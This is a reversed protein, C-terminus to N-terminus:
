GVGAPGRQWISRLLAVGAVFCLPATLLGPLGPFYGRQVLALAVHGVGNAIGAGVACFGVALSALAVDNAVGVAAAAFVAIWRLNYALFM